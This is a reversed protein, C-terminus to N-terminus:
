PFYIGKNIEVTKITSLHWASEPTSVVGTFRLHKVLPSPPPPSPPSSPPPPSPPPPSDGESYTLSSVFFSWTKSHVANLDLPMCTQPGSLTGLSVHPSLYFLLLLLKYNHTDFSKKYSNSQSSQQCMLRRSGPCWGRGIWCWSSIKSPSILQYKKSSFYLISVRFITAYDIINQSNATQVSCHV